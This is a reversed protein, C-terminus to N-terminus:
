PVNILGCVLRLLLGYDHMTCAMSNAAVYFSKVSELCHFLKGWGEARLVLFVKWVYCFNPAMAALPM